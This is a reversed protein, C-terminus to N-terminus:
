GRRSSWAFGRAPRRRGRLRRGRTRARSRGRPRGRRGGRRHRRRREAARRRAERRRVEGALIGRITAANETPPAAPRAGGPRAPRLRPRAPRDRSRAGRRGAGRLRPEPGGAVARRHRRLRARRVRARRRAARGGRRVHAGAGARLRRVDPRSCRGPEDAARPRQLRHAHRAGRRVPAAHKMAPHHAPAFMFGFGLEDISEAIREPPQELEFGLAELVDASGSARGSPATATSRWRRARPPRSSRLRPRSTSRAHATAAPASSTSSTTRTPHVPLVHERM